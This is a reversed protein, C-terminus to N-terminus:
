IEYACYKGFPGSFNEGRMQKAVEHELCPLGNPPGSMFRGRGSRVVPFTCALLPLIYPNHYTSRLKGREFTCYALDHAAVAIIPRIIIGVNSGVLTYTGLVLFSIKEVEKDFWVVVHSLAELHM